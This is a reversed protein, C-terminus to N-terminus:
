SCPQSNLDRGDLLISGCRVRGPGMVNGIADVLCIRGTPMDISQQLFGFGGYSVWM